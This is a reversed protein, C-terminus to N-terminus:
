QWIYKLTHVSGTNSLRCKPAAKKKPQKTQTEGLIAALEAEMGDDDEDDDDDGYGM